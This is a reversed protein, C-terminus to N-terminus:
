RERARQGLGGYGIPERPGREVQLQRLEPHPPCWSRIAMGLREVAHEHSSPEGAADRDQGNEAHTRVTRAEARHSEFATRIGILCARTFDFNRRRSLISARREPGRECAAGRGSQMRDGIRSLQQEEGAPEEREEWQIWSRIEAAYRGCHLVDDLDLLNRANGILGFTAAAARLASVRVIMARNFRSYGSAVHANCWPLASSSSTAVIKDACHVSARTFM